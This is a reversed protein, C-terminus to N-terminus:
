TTHTIRMVAEGLRTQLPLEVTQEHGVVAVVETLEGYINHTGDHVIPMADKPARYSVIGGYNDPNCSIVYVGPKEAEYHTMSASKGPPIDSMQVITETKKIRAVIEVTLPPM